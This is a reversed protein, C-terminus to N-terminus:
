AFREKLAALRGKVSGDFVDSGVTIRMGGILAPNHSFATSLGPGYTDSLRKQVKDAAPQPLPTATEVVASHQARNLKVLRQFEQLVPLCRPPKAAVVRTLLQQARGEDWLGKVLCLRFLRRAEQRDQKRAKM